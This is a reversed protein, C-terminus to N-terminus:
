IDFDSLSEILQKFTDENKFALADRVVTYKLRVAENSGFALASFLFSLDGFYRQQFIKHWPSLHKSLKKVANWIDTLDLLHHRFRLPSQFKHDLGIAPHRM